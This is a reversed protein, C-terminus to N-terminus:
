QQKPNAPSAGPLTPRLNAFQHVANYIWRYLEQGDFRTGPEPMTVFAATAVMYAWPLIVGWHAVLFALIDHM